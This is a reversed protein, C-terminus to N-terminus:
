TEDSDMYREFARRREITARELDHRLKAMEAPCAQRGDGKALARNAERQRQKALEYREKLTLTMARRETGHFLINWLENGKREALNPKTRRGVVALCRLFVFFRLRM